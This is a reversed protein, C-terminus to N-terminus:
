AGLSTILDTVLAKHEDPLQQRVSRLDDAVRARLGRSAEREAGLAKATEATAAAARKAEDIGSKGVVLGFYLGVLSTIVSSATGITAAPDPGRGTAATVYVGYVLALAGLVVLANIARSAVDPWSTTPPPVPTTEM